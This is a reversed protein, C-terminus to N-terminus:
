LVVRGDATYMPGICRRCYRGYGEDGCWGCSAVVCATQAPPSDSATAGPGCQADAAVCAPRRVRMAAAHERARAHPPNLVYALLSRPSRRAERSMGDAGVRRLAVNAAVNGAPDAAGPPVPDHLGRAVRGDATCMPGMCRRCCRAYGEDGCWDCFGVVIAPPPAPAASGALEWPSRQLYEFGAPPAVCASGAGALHGAACASETPEMQDRRVDLGASSSSAGPLERGEM